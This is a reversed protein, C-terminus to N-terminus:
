EEGSKQEINRIKALRRAHRGGDFGTALWVKVIGEMTEDRLRDGSLCLVNVDNHRRCLEAGADDDVMVARVAPFKNATIAMGMGSGCILIGRDVEGSANSGPNKKCM